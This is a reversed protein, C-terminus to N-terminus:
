RAEQQGQENPPKMEADIKADIEDKSAVHGSLWRTFDNQKNGDCDGALWRWRAADKDLKDNAAFKDRKKACEVREAKAGAEWAAQALDVEEGLLAREYVFEKFNM